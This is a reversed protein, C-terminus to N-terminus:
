DAPGQNSGLDPLWLDVNGRYRESVDVWVTAFTYGSNLLVAGSRRREQKRLLLKFATPHTAVKTM